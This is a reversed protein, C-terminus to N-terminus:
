KAAAKSPHFLGERVIKTFIYIIDAFLLFSNAKKIINPWMGGGGVGCVGGRWGWRM